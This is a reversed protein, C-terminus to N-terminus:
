YQDGGKDLRRHRPNDGASILRLFIQWIQFALTYRDEGIRCGYDAVLVKYIKQERSPDLDDLDEPRGYDGASIAIVVALATLVLCAALLRYTVRESPRTNLLPSM